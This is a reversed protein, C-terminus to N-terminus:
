VAMKAKISPHSFYGILEFDDITIENFDKNKIDDNLHLIPFPLPKRSLQEKVQEIHNSYIHTDGMCVILEDPIMDVKKALIYTLVTYSFINFPLGLFVDTSRMNFLCSLYKKGNEEKVYFQVFYHCSPLAVEDLVCPNWASMVIRRSFPDTKLLNIVYQLQDVGGINTNTQIKSTDGYSISYKAGFYRWQFGYVPGLIGEPYEYLGRSDLFERSSNGNWINVGKKQLISADTDGRLFFLLEEICSKWAVRKTTLVPVNKNIDFRITNGFSSITGTNTRDSRINKNKLINNCLNIYELEQHFCNKPEYFLRTYNCQEEPSYYKNYKILKFKSPINNTNFFTDCEEYKKDIYTIIISHLNNSSLFKNYIQEGGIIFIKKNPYKAILEYLENDSGYVLNKTNSNSSNRTYVFNIRNVLPHGISDFTKRGMVVINDITENKFFLLDEKIKKWPLNNNKGIALNKSFATIIRFYM